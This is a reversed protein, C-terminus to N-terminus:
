DNRILREKIVVISGIKHYWVKQDPIFGRGPHISIWKNIFGERNNFGEDKYHNTAVDELTTRIVEEVNYTVDWGDVTFTRTGTGYNKTRTTGCKILDKIAQKMDYHFPIDEAAIFTINPHYNDATLHPMPNDEIKRRLIEWFDEKEMKVDLVATIYADNGKLEINKITGIRAGFNDTLPTDPKIMHATENEIKMTIKVMNVRKWRHGSHM